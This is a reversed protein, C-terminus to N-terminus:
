IPLITFQSVALSPRQLKRYLIRSARRNSSKEVASLNISENVVVVWSADDSGLSARSEARAQDEHTRSDRETDVGLNELKKELVENSDVMTDAETIKTRIVSDDM